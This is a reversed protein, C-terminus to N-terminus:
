PLNCLLWRRASAAQFWYLPESNWRLVPRTTPDPEDLFSAIADGLTVLPEVPQKWSILGMVTTKILNCVIVIVMIIMNFQVKCQEEVPRSLCHDIPYFGRHLIDAVSITRDKNCNPSIDCGHLVSANTATYFHPEQLPWYDLVSNKQPITNNLSAVLLVDTRSSVFDAAYTEFCAKNDLKEVKAGPERFHQIRKILGIYDEHEQYGPGALSFPTGTSFDESVIVIAYERASLTSFVASNYMLHLPISSFAVLCWLALNRRSLKFMNRMSPVGVDLWQRKSHAKNIDNRTPSSLCQMTYNSAGLLLTSLVNIALHLWTTLSKTQSCSGDQITGLGGSVQYTYSAWTTVALNIIFVIGSVVACSLVGFHYGEIKKIINKLRHYYLSVIGQHRFPGHSQPKTLPKGIQLLSTSSSHM